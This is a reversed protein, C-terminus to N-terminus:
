IIITELGFNLRSISALWPSRAQCQFHSHTWANGGHVIASYGNVTTFFLYSNIKFTHQLRVFRCECQVSAIRIRNDTRKRSVYVDFDYLEALPNKTVHYRPAWRHAAATNSILRLNGLDRRTQQTCHGKPCFSDALLPMIIRECDGRVTSLALVQTSSTKASSLKRM